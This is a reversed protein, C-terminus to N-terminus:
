ISHTFFIFFIYLATNFHQSLSLSLSLSLSASLSLSLSLSTLVFHFHAQFLTYFINRFYYPCVDYMTYLQNPYNTLIQQTMYISNFSYVLSSFWPDNRTNNRMFCVCDRQQVNIHDIYIM